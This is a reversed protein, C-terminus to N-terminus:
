LREKQIFLEATAFPPGIDVLSAINKRTILDSRLNLLKERLTPGGFHSAHKRIETTVSDPLFVTFNRIQILVAIPYYIISRTLINVYDYQKTSNAILPSEVSTAASAAYVLAPLLILKVNNSTLVMQMELANFSSFRWPYYPLSILSM